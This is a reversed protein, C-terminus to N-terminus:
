ETQLIQSLLDNRTLGCMYHVKADKHFEALNAFSYYYIM